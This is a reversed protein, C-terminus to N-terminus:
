MATPSTQAASCVSSRLASEEAFLLLLFVHAAHCLWSRADSLAAAPRGWALAPQWLARSYSTEPYPAACPAATAAGAAKKDLGEAAGAASACEAEHAEATVCPNDVPLTGIQAAPHVDRMAPQAAWSGHEPQHATINIVRLAGNSGTLRGPKAVTALSAGEHSSGPKSVPDAGVASATTCVSLSPASRTASFVGHFGESSGPKAGGLLKRMRLWAPFGLFARLVPRRLFQLPADATHQEAQFGCREYLRRAATNDM